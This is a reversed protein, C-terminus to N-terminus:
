YYSECIWQDGRYMSKGLEKKNAFQFDRHDRWSISLANVHRFRVDPYRSNGDESLTILTSDKSDIGKTLEATWDNSGRIKLIQELIDTKLYAALLDHVSALM